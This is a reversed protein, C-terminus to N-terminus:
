SEDEPPPEALRGLQALWDAPLGREAAIEAAIEGVIGPGDRLADDITSETDGECWAMIVMGPGLAYHEPSIDEDSSPEAGDDAPETEDDPTECDTM